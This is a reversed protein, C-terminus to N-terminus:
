KKQGDGFTNICLQRFDTFTHEELEACYELYNPYLQGESFVLGDTRPQVFQENDLIFMLEQAQEKTINYVCDGEQLKQGPQIKIEREKSFFAFYTYGPDLGNVSNVTINTSLLEWGTNVKLNLKDRFESLKNYVMISEIIKESM